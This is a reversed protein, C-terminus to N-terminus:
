AVTKGPLSTEESPENMVSKVFCLGYTNETKFNNSQLDTMQEVPSLGMTYFTSPIVQSYLKIDTANLM